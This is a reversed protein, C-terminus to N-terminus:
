AVIFFLGVLGAFEVEISHVTGILVAVGKVRLLCFPSLGEPFSFLLFFFCVFLVIIFISLICYM